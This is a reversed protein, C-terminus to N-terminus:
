PLKQKFSRNLDQLSADDAPIPTERDLYKFYEEVKQPIGPWERRLLAKKHDRLIERTPAGEPSVLFAAAKEEIVNIAGLLESPEREFIGAGTASVGMFRQGGELKKAGGSAKGTKTSSGDAASGSETSIPQTLSTHFVWCAFVAFFIGPAFHVARLELLRGFKLTGQQAKNAGMAFLVFGLILSVGGFSVALIRETMRLEEVTM